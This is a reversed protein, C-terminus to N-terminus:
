FGLPKVPTLSFDSTIILTNFKLATPFVIKKAVPVAKKGSLYM